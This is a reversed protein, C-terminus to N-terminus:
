HWRSAHLDFQVVLYFAQWFPVASACSVLKRLGGCEWGQLLCYTLMCRYLTNYVWYRVGVLLMQFFWRMFAIWLWPVWVSVQDGSLVWFHFWVTM